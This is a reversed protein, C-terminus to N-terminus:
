AELDRKLLQALRQRPDPLPQNLAAFVHRELFYGTLSLAEVIEGAGQAGEGVLFPPLRLLKDKYPEGASLSVARGTKPSVYALQDNRGTAACRSLDLGFGLEGLLGLEWHVYALPWDDLLLAEILAGTAHFLAPHPEREPLGADILSCIATLAALRDPHQMLPGAHGKVPELAYTGLHEALRARWTADVRNGAQLVGRLRRGTAGRVLGAHRGHQETLLTVVAANEGHRRARLVIGEEQWDM